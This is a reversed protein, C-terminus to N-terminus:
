GKGKVLWLVFLVIMFMYGVFMFFDLFIEDHGLYHLVANIGKMMLIIFFVVFMLILPTNRKLKKRM